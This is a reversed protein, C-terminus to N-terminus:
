DQLDRPGGGVARTFAAVGTGIRFARAEVDRVLLVLQRVGRVRSMAEDSQLSFFWFLWGRSVTSIYPM